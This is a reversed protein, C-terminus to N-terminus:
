ALSDALRIRETRTAAGSELRVVAPSTARRLARGSASDLARAVELNAHILTGLSEAATLLPAIEGGNPDSTIVRAGWIMAAVVGALISRTLWLAVESQLQTRGETVAM